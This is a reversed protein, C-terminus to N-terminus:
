KTTPCGCGEGCRCVQACRCGEGCTCREAAPKGCACTTKECRCDNPNQKNM